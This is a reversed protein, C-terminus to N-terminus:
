GFTISLIFVCICVCVPGVTARAPSNFHDSVLISFFCVFFEGQRCHFTVVALAKQEDYYLEMVPGGGSRRQNEFFLVIPEPPMDKAFGTVSVACSASHPWTAVLVTSLKFSLLTHNRREAVRAAAATRCCLTCDVCHSVVLLAILV